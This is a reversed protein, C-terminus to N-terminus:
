IVILDGNKHSKNFHRQGLAEKAEKRNRFKTMTPIYLYKFEREVNNEM